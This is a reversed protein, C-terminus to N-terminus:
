WRRGGLGRLAIALDSGIFGLGGTVLARSGEFRSLVSAPLPAALSRM